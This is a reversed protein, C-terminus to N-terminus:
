RPAAIATSADGVHEPVETSEHFLSHERRAPGKAMKIHTFWAAGGFNGFVGVWGLWTLPAASFIVVGFMFTARINGTVAQALPSNVLCNLFVVYNMALCSVSNLAFHFLIETSLASPALPLIEGPLLKAIVLIIVIQMVISVVSNAYLVQAVGQGKKRAVRRGLEFASGQAVCSIIAQLYRGAHLVLHCFIAVVATIMPLVDTDTTDAYRWSYNFLEVVAGIIMVAIPLMVKETTNTRAFFLEIIWSAIMTYRDLVGFMVINDFVLSSFGTMVSIGYCVGCLVDGRDLRLSISVQGTSRLLLLAALAVVNQVLPLFCNLSPDVHRFIFINYLTCWTSLAIFVCCIVLTRLRPCLKELWEEVGM